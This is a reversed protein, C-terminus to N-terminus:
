KIILIMTPSEPKSGSVEVEFDPGRGIHWWMEGPEFGAVGEIIRDSYFRLTSFFVRWGSAVCIELIKKLTKGRKDGIPLLTDRSTISSKIDLRSDAM